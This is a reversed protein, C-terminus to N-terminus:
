SGREVMTVITVSSWNEINSNGFRELIPLYNKESNGM